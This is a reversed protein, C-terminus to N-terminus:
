TLNNTAYEWVGNNHKDWASGPDVGRFWKFLFYFLIGGFPFMDAVVLKESM